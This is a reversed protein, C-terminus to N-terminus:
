SIPMTIEPNEMNMWWLPPNSSKWPILLMLSEWINEEMKLYLIKGSYNIKNRFIVKLLLLMLSMIRSLIDISKLPILMLDIPTKKKQSNKPSDLQSEPWILLEMIPSEEKRSMKMISLFPMLAPKRPCSPSCLPEPLPPKDPLKPTKPDSHNALKLEKPWPPLPM